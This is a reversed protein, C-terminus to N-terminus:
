CFRRIVADIADLSFPKALVAAAGVERGAATADHAGTMAVIPAPDASVARYAAAFARGDMGPMRMDLLVLCPGHTGAADLAAQGDTAEVVAQGALELVDRLVERIEPDDDVVLVPRGPVM